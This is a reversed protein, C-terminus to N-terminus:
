WDGINNLDTLPEPDGWSTATSARESVYLDRRFQGVDDRNSSFFLSLGDKSISVCSDVDDSNVPAGLKEPTSWGSLQKDNDNSDCAYAVCFAVVLLVALFLKAKM